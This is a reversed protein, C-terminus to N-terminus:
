IIGNVKEGGKERFLNLIDETKKKIEEVSVKKIEIDNNEKDVFDFMRCYNNFDTIPNMAIFLHMQWGLFLLEKKKELELSM